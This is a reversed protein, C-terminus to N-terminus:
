LESGQEVIQDAPLAALLAGVAAEVEGEQRGDFTVTLRYGDDSWRPYSGIAVAPHERVLRLLLEALEGEDSGTTVARSVFPKGGGLRRRVAALKRRFIKPVGPLVFVNGVLVTPWRTREDVVLEAGEPVEAMRLHAETLRDGFHRRLIAELAPERVRRRGFAAAVADITVDDHTPGVGGSTFVYDHSRRLEDLDRAITEVEDPCVIVRRLLIGLDFLTKGLVAVNADQIKGTLLENGIVLAAATRPDSTAM